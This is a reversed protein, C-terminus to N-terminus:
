IAEPIGERAGIRANRARKPCLAAVLLGYLGVIRRFKHYIYLAPM